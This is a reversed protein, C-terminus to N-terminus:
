ESAESAEEAKAKQQQQRFAELIREECRYILNGDMCMSCFYYPYLKNSNDEYTYGYKDMKVGHKINPCNTTSHYILTQNADGNSKPSIEVFFDYGKGKPNKESNVGVFYGGIFSLAVSVVSVVAVIIHKKSIEIKM